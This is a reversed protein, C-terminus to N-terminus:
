EKAARVSGILSDIGLALGAGIVYALLDLPVFTSGLVLRIPPFAAALTAPISTIQLLEIAVCFALAIAANSWPAARPRLFVLLVYVLVAYLVGGSLDAAPGAGLFRAGLGLVVVPVVLLGAALRRMRARPDAM